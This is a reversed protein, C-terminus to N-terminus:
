TRNERRDTAGEEIRGDPQRTRVGGDETGVVSEDEVLAGVKRKVPMDGGSVKAKAEATRADVDGGIVRKENM